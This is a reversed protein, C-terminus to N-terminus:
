TRERAFIAVGSSRAARRLREDLTALPARRRVSLELYAADHASLGYKQALPLVRLVHEGATRVDQVLSLNELLTAFRVIEQPGLRKRREGVLIGNAVELVWVAPVWISHQALAVLVEDAYGSGEDPFCWALAVSADVVVANM